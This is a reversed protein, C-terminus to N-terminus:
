RANSWRKESAKRAIEARREPTLNEARKRGGKAGLAKAAPDKGDNLSAHKNASQSFQLQVQTQVKDGVSTVTWFAGNDALIELRAGVIAGREEIWGKMRGTGCALDCQRYKKM